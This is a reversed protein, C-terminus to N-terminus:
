PTATARRAHLWEDEARGLETSSPGEHLYEDLLAGWRAGAHLRGFLASMGWVVRDLIVYSPPM